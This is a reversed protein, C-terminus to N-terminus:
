PTHRHLSRPPACRVDGPEVIFSSCHEANVFYGDM